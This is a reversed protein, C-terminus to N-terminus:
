GRKLCEKQLQQLYKTQKQKTWSAYENYRSLIDKDGYKYDMLAIIYLLELGNTQVSSYVKGSRTSVM